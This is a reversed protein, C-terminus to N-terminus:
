KMVEVLEQGMILAAELLPIAEEPRVHLLHNIVVEITAIGTTPKGPNTARVAMRLM